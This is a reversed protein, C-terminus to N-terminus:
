EEAPEVRQPHAPRTEVDIEADQLSVAVDAADLPQLPQGGSSEAKGGGDVDQGVLGVLQKVAEAAREVTGADTDEGPCLLDQGTSSSGIM